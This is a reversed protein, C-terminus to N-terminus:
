RVAKEIQRLQEGAALADARLADLTADDWEDAPTLEIRHAIAEGTAALDGGPSVRLRTAAQNVTATLADIYPQAAATDHEAESM